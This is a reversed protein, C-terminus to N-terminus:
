PADYPNKGKRPMMRIRPAPCTSIGACLQLGLYCRHGQLRQGM